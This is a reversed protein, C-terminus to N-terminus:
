HQPLPSATPLPQGRLFFSPTDLLAETANESNVSGIESDLLITSRDDKESFAEINKSGPHRAFQASKVILLVFYLVFLLAVITVATVFLCSVDEVIKRAMSELIGNRDLLAKWSPIGMSDTSETKDHDASLASKAHLCFIEDVEETVTLDESTERARIRRKGHEPVNRLRGTRAMLLFTFHFFFTRPLQSRSGGARGIPVSQSM